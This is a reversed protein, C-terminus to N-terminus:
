FLKTCTKHCFQNDGIIYQSLPMSLLGLKGIMFIYFSRQMFRKNFLFSNKIYEHDILHTINENTKKLFENNLFEIQIMM